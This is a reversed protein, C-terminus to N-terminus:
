KSHNINNLIHINYKLIIDGMIILRPNDKEIYFYYINKQDYLGFGIYSNEMNQVLELNSQITNIVYSPLGLQFSTESIDIM